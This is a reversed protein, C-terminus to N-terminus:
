GEYLDERTWSRDGIAAGSNRCLELLEKRAEGQLGPDAWIGAKAGGVPFGFIAFKHTMARALDAIEQTTIDPMM